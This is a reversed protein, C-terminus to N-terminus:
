NLKIVSNNKAIYLNNKYISPRSIKENDIKLINKLNGTSTEVIFLRGSTTSLYINKSGLVFGTFKIKKRKKEKINKLLYTSRIIRGNEDIVVFYGENTITFIFNDISVPRLSSNIKQSWNLIGTEADISYFNNTNNSYFISNDKLVLDSSNLFMAERYIKSSQTPTQWILKGTSINIATIDGISNNFIVKNDKIVISLKKQSKILPKDTNFKWIKKGDIISYCHISNQADVLFVKDQFIKIQSNFPSSNENSWVLEGNKLNLAYIKAVTDAVVLFDSNNSFFLVPNNKVQSKTYYNKKWVLNSKENFKLITGKSNFFIFHDDVFSIEPDYQDFKKIKSYSYKSKSKLKGEFNSFINNTLNAPDTNNIKLKNINLKLGVNLEKNLVEEKKSIYKIQLIEDKAIKTNPSWIKSNPNLSCGNIFILFLVIKFSFKV